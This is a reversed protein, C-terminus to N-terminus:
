IKQILFVFYRVTGDPRRFRPETNNCGLHFGRLEGQRRNPYCGRHNYEKDQYALLILYCLSMILRM